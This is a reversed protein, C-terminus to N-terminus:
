CTADNRSEGGEANGSRGEDESEEENDWKIQDYNDLYKQSLAGIKPPIWPGSDRSKKYYEGEIWLGM